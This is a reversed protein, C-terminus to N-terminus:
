LFLPCFWTMLALPGGVSSSYHLCAAMVLSEANFCPSTPLVDVWREKAELSRHTGAMSWIWSSDLRCLTM